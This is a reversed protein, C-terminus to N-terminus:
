TWIETLVRVFNAGIVKEAIRAPYGRKLLQDTIVELKRPTNMGIVYPVRDEEPAAAGSKKRREQEKNFEEMAKPSTDVPNVGLDSGVGMHDEGAVKLAHEMHAMYDDVTPQKPSAALFPLDYIGMVGGKDALARIQEDTKNRPHPHIATCGAHSIIVPKASAAMADATTKPNAHSLDIAVGLDNMKKVAEHGLPTLGGADPMLVGAGFPSKLNYSLQMIRVGLNRFTEIRDVKDELMSAAEFSPIIGMKNERKARGMDAAVRVQLFYEPHVEVLRQVFAIDEVTAVFDGNFGGLTTKVVSVGCSRAMDLMNQPLPLTEQLPPASNCDLVLSKGYVRAAESSLKSTDDVTQAVMLSSPLLRAGAASALLLSFERRNLM